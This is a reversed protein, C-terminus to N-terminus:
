YFRGYISVVLIFLVVFSVSSVGVGLGSHLGCFRFREDRLFRYVFSCEGLSFRPFLFDAPM